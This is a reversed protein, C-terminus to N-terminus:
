NMKYKFFLMKFFVLRFISFCLQNRKERNLLYTLHNSISKPVAFDIVYLIAATILNTQSQNIQTSFIM